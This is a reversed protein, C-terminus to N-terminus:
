NRGMMNKVRDRAIDLDQKSIKQTKKIFGHLLVIQDNLVTFLIRVIKGLLKIRIEWIDKELKKVVPMGLPWGYQVLKIEQGIRKKEKKGMSLLWERVPENGNDTKYFVVSLRNNPEMLNFHVM